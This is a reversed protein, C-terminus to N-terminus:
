SSMNEKDENESQILKERLIIIGPPAEFGLRIQKGRIEMVMIKVEDGVLVKENEKVTLILMNVERGPFFRSYRLRYWVSELFHPTKQLGAVEEVLHFFLGPLESAQLSGLKLSVEVGDGIPDVV